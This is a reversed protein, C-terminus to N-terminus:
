NKGKRYLEPHNKIFNLLELCKEKLDEWERADDEDKPECNMNVLTAAGNVLLAKMHVWIKNKNTETLDSWYDKLQLLKMMNDKQEQDNNGGFKQFGKGKKVNDLDTFFEEKERFIEKYWPASCYM